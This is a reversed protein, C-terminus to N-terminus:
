DEQAMALLNSHFIKKKSRVSPVLNHRIETKLNEQIEENGITRLRLNKPLEHSLKYM